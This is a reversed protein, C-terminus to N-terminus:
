QFRPHMWLTSFGTSLFLSIKTCSFVMKFLLIKSFTEFGVMFFYNQIYNKYHPDMYIGNSDTFIELICSGQLKHHNERKVEERLAKAEPIRKKNEETLGKIFSYKQQNGYNVMGIVSIM